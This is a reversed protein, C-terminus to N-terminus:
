NYQSQLQRQQQNRNNANAYFMSLQHQYQLMSYSSPQMQYGGGMMQPVHLGSLMNPQFGLGGQPQQMQGTANMFPSVGM